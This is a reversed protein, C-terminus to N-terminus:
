VLITNGLRTLHFNAGSLSTTCGQAVTKELVEHVNDGVIYQPM